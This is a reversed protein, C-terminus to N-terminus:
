ILANAELIRQVEQARREWSAAEGAEQRRHRPWPGDERLAQECAAVFGHLEDSQYILGPLDEMQSPFSHRVVPKGAALAEFVRGPCVDNAAPGDRRLDMCVDLQHVYDPVEILPCREALIVQDMRRLQRLGPSEEQRGLFLFRWDPHAAAATFVPDLNLDAWLTGVYGLLPHGVERLLEPLEIDERTFMPYNCGNPIIAINGSCPSLRDALGASAAIVVDAALALDSEWDLPFQTWYRDCDYVLGRYPLYDLLHVGEPTTCWLLPDREERLRLISQIYDSIRRQNQRFRFRKEPGVPWVGPLAYATVGPRVKRGPKKHEQSGRPGPPEFFLVEAGKVRTMLQQTRTPTSQWPASSLCVIVSM